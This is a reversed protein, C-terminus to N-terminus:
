RSEPMQERLLGLTFRYFLATPVLALVTIGVVLPLPAGLILGFLCCVVPFRGLLLVTTTRNSIRGARWRRAELPRSAVAGLIVLVALVGHM